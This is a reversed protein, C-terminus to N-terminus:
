NNGTQIELFSKYEAAFTEGVYDCTKKDQFALLPGLVSYTYTHTYHSAIFRFGSTNSKDKEVDYWPFWKRKTNDFVNLKAGEQFCETILLLRNLIQIGKKRPHTETVEYNKPDEGMEQCVQEFTSIRDIRTNKQTM